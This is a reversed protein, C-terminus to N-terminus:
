GGIEKVVKVVKGEVAMGVGGRAAGYAGYVGGGKAGM